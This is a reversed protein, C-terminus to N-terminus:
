GPPFLQSVYYSDMYERLAFIKGDKTEVGWAYNNNYPRGDALTGVGRTEAMVLDGSSAVHDVHVKPDGAAFLGRVPALFSDIIFDRPGHSGEGPIGRAKVTWTCDPHMLARVKELDGTSLTEFFQVVLREQPTKPDAM